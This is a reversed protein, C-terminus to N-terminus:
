KSVKFDQLNDLFIKGKLYNETAVITVSKDPNVKYSHLKDVVFWREKNGSLPCPNLIVTTKKTLERPTLRVVRQPLTIAFLDQQEGDTSAAAIQSTTPTTLEAPITPVNTLTPLNTITPLNTPSNTPNVKAVEQKTSNTKITEQKTTTM